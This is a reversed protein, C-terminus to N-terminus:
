PPKNLYPTNKKLSKRLDRYLTGRDYSLGKEFNLHNIIVGKEKKNSKEKKCDVNNQPYIKM